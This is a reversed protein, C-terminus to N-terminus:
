LPLPKLQKKSHYKVSSEVIKGTIDRRKRKLIRSYKNMKGTVLSDTMINILTLGNRSTSHRKGCLVREVFGMYIIIEAWQYLDFSM